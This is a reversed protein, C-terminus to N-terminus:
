KIDDSSITIINHTKLNQKLLNFVTSKGTAPITLSLTIAVKKNFPQHETNM